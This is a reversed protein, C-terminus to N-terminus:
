LVKFLYKVMNIIGAKCASYEIPSVMKTDLYHDFKPAAVGQISSIHILNGHKQKLFQKIIKQSFMIAVGLQNFLDEKLYDQKLEEFRTGWQETRPYASHVAGDICGFKNIVDSIFESIKESNSIDLNYYHILDNNSALANGISNNVDAIIVNAKQQSIKKAIEQGLLGCGGTVVITKNNLVCAGSILYEAFYFDLEDDIDIARSKPVYFSKLKGEFISNFKRVKEPKTVYAVTTVDYVEPVDQRRSITNDNTLVVEVFGNIEKVMNFYPSRNSETVGIVFDTNEDLTNLANTIDEENRLPSTTPLSIFRDFHINQDSLYSVAHKWSLFEPSQNTALNDPRKIIKAGFQKSVSAIEDCDTSVYIEDILKHCQALEIAIMPKNNLLKINKKPLGQSGGRAFIFAITKM